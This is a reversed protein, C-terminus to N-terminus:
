KKGVWSHHGWTDAEGGSTPVLCPVFAVDRLLPHEGLPQPLRALLPLLARFAALLHNLLPAPVPAAPLSALACIQQLLVEPEAEVSRGPRLGDIALEAALAPAVAWVVPFDALPFLESALSMQSAAASPEASGSAALSPLWPCSRLRQLASERCGMLSAHRSSLHALLSSGREIDGDSAILAAEDAVHEWTLETKLGCRLLVRWVAADDLSMQSILASLRASRDRVVRFRDSGSSSALAPDFAETITSPAAMETPVWRIDRLRESLDLVEAEQWSGAWEVLALVFRALEEGPLEGAMPLLVEWYVWTIPQTRLSGRSRFLDVVHPPPDVVVHGAQACLRLLDQRCALLAATPSAFFLAESPRALSGLPTPLLPMDQLRGVLADLVGLYEREVNAVVPWASHGHNSSLSKSGALLELASAYVRPVMSTLIWSNWEAWMKHEGASTDSVFSLFPCSVAVREQGDM